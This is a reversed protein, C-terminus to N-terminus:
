LNSDERPLLIPRYKELFTYQPTNEFNEKPELIERRLVRDKAIKSGNTKKVAEYLLQIAPTYELTIRDKFITISAYIDKLLTRQEEILNKEGAKLYDDKVRQSLNYYNAGDNVFKTSAEAHKKIQGAIKLLEASYEKFKTNYYDQTIKEDLKDEYIGDLRKKYIREQETLENMSSSHFNIEDQHSEKLARRIWEEINPNKIKLKEFGKILVKEVTKQNIWHRSKCEKYYNCHGYVNGKHAEWTYLGGCDECTIKGKFLYDHKQYKPTNKSTLLKQVNEFVDIDILPEQNGQYVEDNWRMKGAYFPDRLLRHIRSMVVKKGSETRMGEEYMKQTLTRVSCMGSVYYEFMRRIFGAKKEDIVHIKKGREGVSIYGIPPRTPLWGQSIKEKQGKKVEESLNDIYNKAFLIRIGWNLKEQSRSNSHLILSDKVLHIQREDDQELWEDIMVMDKFNRTLRDAKECVIVKVEKKQTFEMMEAFISRQSKGSASESISFTKVVEFNCKEAYSKLLKEQAPLSYGTEDQEKSSVRCFLICRM